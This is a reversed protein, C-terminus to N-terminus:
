GFKPDINEKTPHTESGFSGGGGGEYSCLRAKTQWKPAWIALRCSFYLKPFSYDGQLVYIKERRVAVGDSRWECRIKPHYRASPM